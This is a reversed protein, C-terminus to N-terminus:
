FTFKHRAKSPLLSLTVFKYGNYFGQLVKLKAISNAIESKCNKLNYSKWCKQLDVAVDGPTLSGVRQRRQVSEVRKELDNSNPDLATKYSKLKVNRFWTSLNRQLFYRTSYAKTVVNSSHPKWSFKRYLIM